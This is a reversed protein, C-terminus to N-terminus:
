RREKSWHTEACHMVYENWDTFLLGCKKCRPKFAYRPDRELERTLKIATM